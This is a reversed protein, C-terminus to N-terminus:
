SNTLIKLMLKPAFGNVLLFVMLAWLVSKERFTLGIEEDIVNPRSGYFIRAFLRFCSFGNLTLSLTILFVIIIHSDIGSDLLFEEEIFGITGPFGVLSLACVLFCIGLEPFHAGLGTPYLIGKVGLRGNLLACVSILGCCSIILNASDLLSATHGGEGLTNIGLIMLSIHSLYLYAPIRKLRSEGFFSISTHVLGVIAMVMVITFLQPYFYVLPVYLRFLMLLSLMMTSVPLFITSRPAGIFPVVWSHFPFLGIASFCALSSSLVGMISFSKGTYGLFLHDLLSIVLCIATLSHYVTFARARLLRGDDEVFSNIHSNASRILILYCIAGILLFTHISGALALCLTGCFLWYVRSMKVRVLPVLPCLLTGALMVLSQLLCFLLGWHSADLMWFRHDDPLDFVLGSGIYQKNIITSLEYIFGLISYSSVFLALWRRFGIVNPRFVESFFEILAAVVILLFISVIIM